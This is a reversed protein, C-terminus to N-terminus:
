DKALLIVHNAPAGVWKNEEWARLFVSGSEVDFRVRNVMMGDKDLINVQLGNDNPIVELEYSGIPINNIHLTM